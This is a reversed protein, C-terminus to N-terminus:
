RNLFQVVALVRRHNDPEPPLGLTEFILAISREVAKETVVLERAIRANSYGQAMLGLVERRRPTLRDLPHDKRSRNVVSVVVDPDIVSGGDAVLQIDQMFTEVELVRQKLLYGVGGNGTQLLEVAGFPDVHQSLVVIRLSPLSARLAIAVTMGETTFTPPMRIDTLVLDPRLRETRDQLEGADSATAIVQHGADSLLRELGARLLTEDEAVIVRLGAM